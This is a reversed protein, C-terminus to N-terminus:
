QCIMFEDQGPAGCVQLSMRQKIQAEIYSAFFPAVVNGLGCFSGGSFQLDSTEVGGAAAGSFLLHSLLGSNSDAAFSAKGSVTATPSGSNATDFSSSCSIGSYNFAIDSVTAVHGVVSFSYTTATDAAISVTPTDISIKTTTPIGGTCNVTPNTGCSAPIDLTGTGFLYAIARGVTDTSNVLAEYNIAPPPPLPTPNCTLTVLGNPAVDVSLTGSAEGVNCRTGSLDSVSSVSTGAPGQPGTAGTAGADGKPGQAGTAGAPGTAGSDGKPGQAGTAGAPGTAGTEGNSGSPGVPGTPGQTGQPGVPGAAGVTAWFEEVGDGIKTYASLLYGGPAPAFPLQVVAHTRTSNPLVQLLISNPGWQVVLPFKNPQADQLNIGSLTLQNNGADYIVSGIVPVTACVPAGFAAALTAAMVSQIFRNSVPM